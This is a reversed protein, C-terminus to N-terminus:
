CANPNDSSSSQEDSCHPYEQWRSSCLVTRLVQAALDAQKPKHELLSPPKSLYIVFTVGPKLNGNETKLSVMFYGPLLKQLFEAEKHQVTKIIFEDDSSVYFISGSAGPNSLEILPENCLSYKSLSFLFNYRICYSFTLMAFVIVLWVQCTAHSCDNGKQESVVIHLSSKFKTILWHKIERSVNGKFVTSITELLKTEQKLINPANLKFFWRCFLSLANVICNTCYNWDLTVSLTSQELERWFYVQWTNEM